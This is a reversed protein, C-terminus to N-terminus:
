KSGAGQVSLKTDIIAYRHKLVLFIPNEKYKQCKRKQNGWRLLTKKNPNCFPSHLINELIKFNSTNCKMEHNTHFTTFIISLSAGSLPIESINDLLCRILQTVHIFKTADKSLLHWYLYIFNVICVEDRTSTFYTWAFSFLKNNSLVYVKIISHMHNKLQKSHIIIIFFSFM